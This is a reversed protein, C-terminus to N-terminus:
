KEKMSVKAVPIMIESKMQAYDGTQAGSLFTECAADTVMYSNKFIWYYLHEYIKGPDKIGKPKIAVAANMEPLTKVDTMEGLKGTLKLAEKAVPIRIETLCHESSVLNPNNLYTYSMAGMPRLGKQGALAYLKGIAMGTKDYSGRHITYLVTQESVKRIEFAPETTNSEAFIEVGIMVVVAVALIGLM